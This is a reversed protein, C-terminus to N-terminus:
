GWASRIRPPFAAWALLTSTVPVGTKEASSACWRAPNSSNRKWRSQTQRRGLLFRMKKDYALQGFTRDGM